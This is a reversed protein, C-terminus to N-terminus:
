KQIMTAASLFSRWRKRAQSVHTLATCADKIANAAVDPLKALFEDEPVIGRNQQFDVRVM